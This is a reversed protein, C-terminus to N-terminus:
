GHRYNLVISGFNLKLFQQFSFSEKWIQKVSSVIRNKGLPSQWVRPCNSSRSYLHLLLCCCNIPIYVQLCLISLCVSIWLCSMAAMADKCVQVVEQSKECCVCPPPLTRAQDTQGRDKGPEWTKNKFWIYSSTRLNMATHLDQTAGCSPHLLLVPGALRSGAQRSATLAPWSCYLGPYM